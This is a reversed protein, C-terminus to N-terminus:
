RDTSVRLEAREGGHWDVATVKGPTYVKRGDRLLNFWVTEGIRPVADMETEQEIVGDVMFTVQM